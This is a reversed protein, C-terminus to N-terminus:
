VATPNEKKAALNRVLIRAAKKASSLRTQRQQEELRLKNLFALIDNLNWRKKHDTLTYIVLNIINEYGNNILISKINEINLHDFNLPKNALKIEKGYVLLLMDNIETNNILRLIMIGFGWSIIKIKKDLYSSYPYYKLMRSGTKHNIVPRKINREPPSYSLIDRDQLRRASGLDALFIQIGDETNRYLINALKIDTYYLRINYLCKIAIIIAYLIDILINKKDAIMSILGNITGIAQEMIICTNITEPPTYVTFTKTNQVVYKVVLESCYKCDICHQETLKKIVNLDDSLSNAQFGYKVAIYKDDDTKYPIVIGYEGQSLITLEDKEIILKFEINETGNIFKILEYINVSNTSGDKSKYQLTFVGNGDYSGTKNFKYQLKSNYSKPKITQVMQICNKPDTNTCCQDKNKDYIRYKKQNDSLDCTDTTLDIKYQSEYGTGIQNKLELYKTKYKLYKNKYKLNTEKNYM